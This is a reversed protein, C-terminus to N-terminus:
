VQAESYLSRKADMDWSSPLQAGASCGFYWPSVAVGQARVGEQEPLLLWWLTVKCM